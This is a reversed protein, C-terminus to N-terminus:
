TSFTSVCSVPLSASTEFLVNGLVCARIGIHPSQNTFIAPKAKKDAGHQQNLGKKKTTKLRTVSPPLGQKDRETRLGEKGGTQTYLSVVLM